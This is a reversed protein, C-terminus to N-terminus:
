TQFAQEEGELFLFWTREENLLNIKQLYCGGGGFCYSLASTDKMRIGTHTFICLFIM